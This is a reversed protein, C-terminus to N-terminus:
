FPLVGPNNVEEWLTEEILSKEGYVENNLAEIVQKDSFTVDEISPKYDPQNWNGKQGKDISFSIQVPIEIRITKQYPTM